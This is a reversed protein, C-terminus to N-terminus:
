AAAIAHVAEIEVVAGGLRERLADVRLGSRTVAAYTRRNLHCGAAVVRQVPTLLDAFFGAVRGPPRVHELMLLRGGPALVREVEALARTPDGVTCFVLTAVITDFSADAFPLFEAAAAVLEIRQIGRARSRAAALMGPDPEAAVIRCVSPGFHAFNAGTGAGLDLVRGSAAALLRERARGLPGRELPRMLRDYNRVLGARFFEHVRRPAM